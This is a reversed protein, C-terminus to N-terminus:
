DDDDVLWGGEAAARMVLDVSKQAYDAMGRRKARARKAARKGKRGLLADLDM